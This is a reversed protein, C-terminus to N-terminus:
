VDKRAGRCNNQRVQESDWVNDVQTGQLHGYLGLLPTDQEYVYRTNDGQQDEQRGHRFGYFYGLEHHVWVSRGLANPSLIVWIQQANSLAAEVQPEWKGSPISQPTSFVSIRNSELLLQVEAALANDLASHSLFVDYEYTM